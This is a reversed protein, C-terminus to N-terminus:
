RRPTPVVRVRGDADMMTTTAGQPVATGTAGEPTVYTSYGPGGGTTVAPGQPTPIVRGDARSPAPYIPAPPIAPQRLGPAADTVPPFPPPTSSGRRAPPVPREQLQDPRVAADPNGLTGRPGEDAASPWVSGAVPLLPDVEVQQGMVRAVTLSDVPAELPRGACAALAALAGVAAMRVAMGPKGM